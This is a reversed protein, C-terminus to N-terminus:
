FHDCSNTIKETKKEKIANFLKKKHFSFMKEKFKITDKIDKSTIYPSTGNKQSINYSDILLNKIEGLKLSFRKNNGNLRCSYKIIEKIADKTFHSIDNEEV